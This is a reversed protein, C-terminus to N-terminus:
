VLVKSEYTSTYAETLVTVDEALTRAPTYATSDYEYLPFQDQQDADSRIYTRPINTTAVGPATTYYNHGLPPGSITSLPSHPGYTSLGTYSTPDGSSNSIEGLGFGLRHNSNERYSPGATPFPASYELSERTVVIGTHDEFMTVDVPSLYDSESRQTAYSGLYSDNSPIPDYSSSNPYYSTENLPRGLLQVEASTATMTDPTTTTVTRQNMKDSQSGSNPQALPLSIVPESTPEPQERQFQISGARDTTPTPRVFALPGRPFSAKGTWLFLEVMLVALNRIGLHKHLRLREAYDDASGVNAEETYEVFSPQSYLRIFDSSYGKDQFSLFIQNEAWVTAPYHPSDGLQSMFLALTLAAKVRLEKRPAKIPTSAYPANNRDNHLLMELSNCDALLNPFVTKKLDSPLLKAEPRLLYQEQGRDEVKLEVAANSHLFPLM